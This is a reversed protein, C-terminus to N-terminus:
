PRLDSVRVRSLNPLRRDSYLEGFVYAWMARPAPRDVRRKALRGALSQPTMESPLLTNQDM